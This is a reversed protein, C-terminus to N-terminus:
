YMTDNKLSAESAFTCLSKYIVLVIIANIFILAFSPSKETGFSCLADICEYTQALPENDWANGNDNMKTTENHMQKTHEQSAYMKGGMKKENTMGNEM